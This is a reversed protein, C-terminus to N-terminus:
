RQTICCGSDRGFVADRPANRAGEAPTPHVAVGERRRPTPSSKADPRIRASHASERDEIGVASSCGLTSVDWVQEEDGRDANSPPDVPRKILEGDSTELDLYRRVDRPLARQIMIGMETMSRPPTTRARAMLYEGPNSQRWEWGNLEALSDLVAKAPIASAFANTRHGRISDIATVKLGTQESVAILVAELTSNALSVTIKTRLGDTGNSQDPTNGAAPKSNTAVRQQQRGAPVDNVPM